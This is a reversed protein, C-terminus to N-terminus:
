KGGARKRGGTKVSGGVEPLFRPWRFVEDVRSVLHDLAM